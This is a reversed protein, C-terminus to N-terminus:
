PRIKALLEALQVGDEPYTALASWTVLHAANLKEQLKTMVIEGGQRTTIWLLIYLGDHFPAVLDRGRLEKQILRIEAALLPRNLGFYLIAVPAQAAGAEALLNEWPALVALAQSQQPYTPIVSASDATPADQMAQVAQLLLTKLSLDPISASLECAYCASGIQTKRGAHSHLVRLLKEIILPIHEAQAQWLLVFLGDRVPFILDHGRLEAQILLTEAYTAPPTMKLALIAFPTSQREAEDFSPKWREALASVAGRHDTQLSIYERAIVSAEGLLAAACGFLMLYVGSVRANYGFILVCVALTALSWVGASILWWLMRRRSYMLVTLFVQIIFAALMLSLWAFIAQQLSTDAMLEHNALTDRLALWLDLGSLSGGVPRNVWTGAVLSITCLVLGLLSYLEARTSFDKKM